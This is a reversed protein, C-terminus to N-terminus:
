EHIDGYGCGLEACSEIGNERMLKMCEKSHRFSLKVM